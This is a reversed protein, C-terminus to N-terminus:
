KVADWMTDASDNDANGIGLLTATYNLIKAHGDVFLYNFRL